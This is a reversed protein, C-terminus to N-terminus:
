KSMMGELESNKLKNLGIHNLSTNFTPRKLKPSVIMNEHVQGLNLKREQKLSSKLPATDTLDGTQLMKSITETAEPKFEENEKYAM